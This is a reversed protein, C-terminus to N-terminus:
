RSAGHGTVHRVGQDGRWDGPHAKARDRHQTVLWAITLVIAWGMLNYPPDVLRGIVFTPIVILFMAPSLALLFETIRHKTQM